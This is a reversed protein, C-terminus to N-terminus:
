KSLIPACNGVGFLGERDSTPRPSSSSIKWAKRCDPRGSLIMGAHRHARAPRRLAIRIGMAECLM